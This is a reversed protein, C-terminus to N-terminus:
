TAAIKDLVFRTAGYSMFIVALGITAWVLINKGKTVKDSSGASTLWVFGGYIFMLLALSGVIGLASNIIKGIFEQPSINGIPSDLSVTGGSATGATGVNIATCGATGVPVGVACPASSAANIAIFALFVSLLLIKLPLKKVAM